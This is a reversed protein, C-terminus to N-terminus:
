SYRWRIEHPRNRSSSRQLASPIRICRAGRGSPLWKYEVLLGAQTYVWAIKRGAFAVAPLPPRVILDLNAKSWQLQKDLSDVEYCIHHLGGGRNLFDQVKSQPGEPEVLEIVPNNPFRPTFFSVKVTQLSDHIIKGDWDLALSRVFKAASKEISKVIYGLHHLTVNNQFTEQPNTLTVGLFRALLADM